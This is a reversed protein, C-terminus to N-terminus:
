YFRVLPYVHFDFLFENTTDLELLGSTLTSCASVVSVLSSYARPQPVPLSLLICTISFLSASYYPSSELQSPTLSTLESLCPPILSLYCWPHPKIFAEFFRLKYKGLIICLIYFTHVCVCVRTCM